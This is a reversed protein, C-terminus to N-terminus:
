QKSSASLFADLNNFRDGAFRDKMYEWVRESPNLKPSHAPLFIFSINTSIEIKKDQHAEANDSVIINYV